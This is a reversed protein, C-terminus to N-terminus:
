SVTQQWNQNMKPDYEIHIHDKELIVDYGIPGLAHLLNRYIIDLKNANLDRTRIDFALGRYHFSDKMHKSDTLSTIVLQCGEVAYIREAIGIAYWVAPQVGDQTTGTKLRM